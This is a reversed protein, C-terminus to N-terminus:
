IECECTAPTLMPHITKNGHSWEGSETGVIYGILAAEEQSFGSLLAPNSFIQHASKIFYIGKGLVSIVLKSDRYQAVIRYRVQNSDIWMITEQDFDKFSLRYNQM